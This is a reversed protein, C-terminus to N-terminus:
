PIVTEAETSPGVGAVWAPHMKDRIWLEIRQKTLVSSPLAAMSYHNFLLGLTTSPTASTFPHGGHNLGQICSPIRQFSDGTLTQKPLVLFTSLGCPFAPLYLTKKKNQNILLSGVSTKSGWVSFM